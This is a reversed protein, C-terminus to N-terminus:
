QVKVGHYDRATWPIKYHTTYLIESQLLTAIISWATDWSKTQKKKKLQTGSVTQLSCSYKLNEKELRIVSAAKLVM